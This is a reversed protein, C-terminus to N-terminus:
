EKELMLQALKLQRTKLKAIEEKAEDLHSALDMTVGILRFLLNKMDPEPVNSLGKKIKKFESLDVIKPDDNDSSM